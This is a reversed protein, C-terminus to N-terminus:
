FEKQVKGCSMMKSGYYPNKIEKNASLWDGGGDYMPCHQQYLKTSAGTIEVLDIMDKSLMKFHERQHEMGSKGIHEAHEKADAVIDKIEAQQSNINNLTALLQNGATQAAGEDTAVLADKLTLYHNIVEQANVENSSNESPQTTMESAESMNTSEKKTDQCSLTTLGFIGVMVITSLKIKRM